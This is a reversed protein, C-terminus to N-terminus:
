VRVYRVGDIEIYEPAPEEIVPAPEPAPETEVPPATVIAIWNDRRQEKMAQIEAETFGHDDPLHLADRFVGHPTDFDFDIKVM